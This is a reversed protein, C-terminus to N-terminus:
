PEGGVRAIGMTLVFGVAILGLSGVAQGASPRFFEPQWDEPDLEALNAETVVQGKVRDGIQPAVGQQFPWLGVVSGFLLGLLAGMTAQRKHELLWQLANGVAVVGIVVGMGVPLM